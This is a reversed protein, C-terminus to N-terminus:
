EVKKIKLGNDALLRDIETEPFYGEHRFLEKGKEDLFIQTPILRVGYIEAFKRQEAKWVDYFIVEIQDGYKKEVHKLIPQMKRCPVCNVSGLEIFTIKSKKSPQVQPKNRSVKEKQGCGYNFSLSFIMFIVSLLTLAKKSSKINM